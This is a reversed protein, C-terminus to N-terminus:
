RRKCDFVGPEPSTSHRHRATRRQTAVPPADWPPGARPGNSTTFPNCSRWPRSPNPSIARVLAGGGAQAPSLPTNSQVAELAAERSEPAMGKSRLTGQGPDIAIYVKGTWLNTKNDKWRDHCLVGTIEALVGKQMATAITQAKPCNIEVTFRDARDDDKVEIWLSLIEIKGDRLDFSRSKPADLVKGLLTVHNTM